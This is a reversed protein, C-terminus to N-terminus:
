DFYRLFAEPLRSTDAPRETTAPLPRSNYTNWFLVNGGRIELDELLAAMAKGTYTAELDLGLQERAVVIARETADTTKAYGEGLFGTRFEYRARQALDAPISPDHRNLMLATKELLRQM